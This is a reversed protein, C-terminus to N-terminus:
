KKVYGRNRLEKEMAGMLVDRFKTCEDCSKNETCWKVWNYFGMAVSEKFRIGQETKEINEPVFLKNRQECCPSLQKEKEM